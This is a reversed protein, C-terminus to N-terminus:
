GELEKLKDFDESSLGQSHMSGPPLKQYRPSAFPSNTALELEIVAENQVGKSM